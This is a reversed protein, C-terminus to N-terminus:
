NDVSSVKIPNDTILKGNLHDYEHQIAIALLGKAELEFFHNNETYASLKLELYRPVTALVGPISLCGEESEYQDGRCEISPNVCVLPARDKGKEPVDLIFFRQMVGVQPATLGIGNHDYMTEFMDKLLTHFAEDFECVDDCTQKLVIDPALIVDLLTM